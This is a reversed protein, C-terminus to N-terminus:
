NSIRFTVIVTEMSNPLQFHDSTAVIEKTADDYITWRFPGTGWHPEEVWWRQTGTVQGRWGEVDNWNGQADVWQVVAWLGNFQTPTRLLITGAPKHEIIEDKEDNSQAPPRPPPPPVPDVVPLPPPPSTPRPPLEAHALSTTGVVSAIVFLVAICGVILHRITHNKM